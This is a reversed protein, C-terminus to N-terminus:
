REMEQKRYNIYSARDGSQLYVTLNLRNATDGLDNVKRGESHEPFDAGYSSGRAM